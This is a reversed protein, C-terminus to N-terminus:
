RKSYCDSCVKRWTELPLRKFFEHCETCKHPELKKKYCDRCCTRWKQNESVEFENKCYKCEFLILKNIFRRHCNNCRGSQNSNKYIMTRCSENMCKIISDECEDCYIDDKKTGVCFENSCMQCYKIKVIKDCTICLKKGYYTIFEEECYACDKRILKIKNNIRCKNMRTEISVCKSCICIKDNSKFITCSDCIICNSSKYEGPNKKELKKFEKEVEKEERKRKRENEYFGEPKGEKREKIKEKCENIKKCTSKYNPDHKSILGYRENCVSGLQINIGSHINQFVHIYMLNENCICTSFMTEDIAFDIDKFDSEGNESKFALKLDKFSQFREVMFKPYSLLLIFALNDTQTPKKNYNLKFYKKLEDHYIEFTSLKSLYFMSHIDQAIEMQKYVFEKFESNLIINTFELKSDPTENRSFQCFEDNLYNSYM